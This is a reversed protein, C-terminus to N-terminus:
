KSEKRNYLRGRKDANNQRWESSMIMLCMCLVGLFAGIFMGCLLGLFFPSM